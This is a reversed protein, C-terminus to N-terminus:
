RNGQWRCGDKTTPLEQTDAVRVTLPLRELAARRELALLDAVFDTATV